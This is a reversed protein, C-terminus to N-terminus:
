YMSPFLVADKWAGYMWQASYAEKGTLMDVTPGNCGELLVPLYIRTELTIGDAVNKNRRLWAIKM